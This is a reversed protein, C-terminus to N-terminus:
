KTTLTISGNFDDPAGQELYQRCTNIYLEILKQDGHERRLQQWAEICAAFDGTYFLEVARTTHEALRRQSRTAAIKTSLLEFVEEPAQKGVVVIRGIPRMLMEQEVIEATRQSIIIQTGFQKNASELRAALNVADGIVTYDSRLPPAGFDGVMMPGTSIGVRMFLEPLDRYEPDDRISDISHVCALASACCDIAHQNNDLPAGFVCMIGDGLYKNVYGRQQMLLETASSLARNLLRATQETGLQESITTFGAIDSFMCTLEHRGYKIAVPNTVLSEVLDASVYNKFQKTIRARERQETFLRYVTIALWAAAAATMPAAAAVITDGYDFALMGNALFYCAILGGTMVLTRIPAFSAAIAAAILGLMATLLLDLWFPGRTLLHDTLIANILAGHTTVGPAKAHLATPVFDAISATATWGILCIAGNVPRYHAEAATIQAQGADIIRQNAAHRAPLNALAEKLQREAPGLDDAPIANLEGVFAEFTPDEQVYELMQAAFATAREPADADGDILAAKIQTYREALAPDLELFLQLNPDTVWQWLQHNAIRSDRLVQRQDALEVLPGIPLHQKPAAQNPDFLHEWREATSQWPVIVRNHPYTWGAEGARAQLTDIILPKGEGVKIPFGPLV